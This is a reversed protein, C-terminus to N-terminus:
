STLPTGSPRALMTTISPLKWPRVVVTIENLSSSSARADNEGNVGPKTCTGNPSAAASSAAISSWVTATSSSGIWPSAPTM